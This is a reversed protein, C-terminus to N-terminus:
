RNKVSMSLSFGQPGFVVSSAPQRRHQERILTTEGISPRKKTRNEKMRDCFWELTYFLAALITAILCLAAWMSYSDSIVRVDDTSSKKHVAILDLSFGQAMPGVFEGVFLLCNYFGSVIAVTAMGEKPLGAKYCCQILDEISPVAILAVGIGMIVLCISIHAFNGMFFTDTGRVVVKTSLTSNVLGTWEALNEQPGLFLYAGTTMVAGIFMAPRSSKPGLHVCLKGIIPTGLGYGCAFVVFLLGTKRTVDAESLGPYIAKVHSQMGPMFFDMASWCLVTLIITAFTGPNTFIKLFQKFSLKESYDGSYLRSSMMLSNTISGGRAPQPNLDLDKLIYAAPGAGLFMFAALCQFPLGFGGANYLESGVMPGIVMGVGTTMELLGVAQTRRESWVFTMISYCATLYMSCAIALLVRLVCAIALFRQPNMELYLFSFLLNGIGSLIIGAFLMSRAGISPLLYGFLPCGVINLAAYVAFILSNQTATLGRKEVAEEPFFTTLLSFGCCSCFNIFCLALMVKMQFGTLPKIKPKNQEPNEHDSLLAAEEM